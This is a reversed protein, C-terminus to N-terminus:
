RRWFVAVLGGDLDATWIDGNCDCDRAFAAFDFYYRLNEPLEALMGTDDMYEEAWAELSDFTGAYCDQFAEAAEEADEFSEYDLFAAFASNDLCYEAATAETNITTQM